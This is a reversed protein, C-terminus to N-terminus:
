LTPHKGSAVSPNFIWCTAPCKWGLHHCLHILIAWAMLRAWWTCTFLLRRWFLKRGPFGHYIDSARLLIATLLLVVYSPIVTIVSWWFASTMFHWFQLLDDWPWILCHQASSPLLWGGANWVLWRFCAILALFGEDWSFLSSPSGDASPSCLMGMSFSFTGLRWMWPQWVKHASWLHLFKMPLLFPENPIIIHKLVNNRPLLTEMTGFDLCCKISFLKGPSSHLINSQNLGPKVDAKCWWSVIM